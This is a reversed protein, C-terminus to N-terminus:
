LAKSRSIRHFVPEHASERSLRWCAIVIAVVSFGTLVCINTVLSYDTDVSPAAHKLLDVCYSFPNILVVYLLFEPLQRVPYLAGSLFFTPFIFFNMMVAFNDV